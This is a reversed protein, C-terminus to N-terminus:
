GSEIRQQGGLKYGFSDSIIPEIRGAVWRTRHKDMENRGQVETYEGSEGETRHRPEKAAREPETRQRAEEGGCKREARM